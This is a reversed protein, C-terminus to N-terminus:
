GQGGLEGGLPTEPNALEVKVGKAMQYAIDKAKAVAVHYRDIACHRVAASASTAEILRVADGDRVSYIRTNSM